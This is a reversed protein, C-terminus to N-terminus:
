LNFCPVGPLLLNKRFTFLLFVVRNLCFFPKARTQAPLLDKMKVGKILGMIIMKKVIKEKRM